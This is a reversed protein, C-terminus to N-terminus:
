DNCREEDSDDGCGCAHNGIAAQKQKHAEEWAGVESAMFAPKEEEPSDAPEDCTGNAQRGVMAMQKTWESVDSGMYNAAGGSESQVASPSSTSAGM